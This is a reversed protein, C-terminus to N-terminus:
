RDSGPGRQVYRRRNSQQSLFSDTSKNESHDAAELEEKTLRFQNKEQLPIAVPVGDALVICPLYSVYCPEAYVVEDGPDLMARLALDIAESGGVTVVTEDEPSYHLNYRRELYRCIEQRLEALGANATYFTRGKQLTYMGEDRVIWPTDFDPEGVGLSIVGPIENAIDFFRRIGSPKIERVKANIPNRM